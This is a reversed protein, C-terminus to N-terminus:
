QFSHPPPDEDRQATVIIAGYCLPMQFNIHSTQWVLSWRHPQHSLWALLKRWWIYVICLKWLFSEYLAYPKLITQTSTSLM